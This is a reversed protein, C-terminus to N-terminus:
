VCLNLNLCVSRPIPPCCLVARRVKLGQTRFYSSPCHYGLQSIAAASLLSPIDPLSSHNYYERLPCVVDHALPKLTSALIFVSSM